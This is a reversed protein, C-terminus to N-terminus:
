QYKKRFYQGPLQVILSKSELEFLHVLIESLELGSAQAIADIHLPEEGLHGLLEGEPGDPLVGGGSSKEPRTGAVEPWLEILIDEVSMVPKAQADQILKNTGRSARSFISGPVAFVERNQELAFSSTVLSGGKLDSEVVLTGATIGSIIRNRKPFKGPSLESGIWEESVLAGREIIKPWLKGRPDTYVTDVGSALVAVTAGGVELAAAHATMDIGYAMGSFIAIGSAALGGSLMRASQHGYSTAHRTGVVALSPHVAVPLRGRVFLCPPPDYIEKLLPPYASDLITLMSAGVRHLAELQDEAAKLSAERQRHDHLFLHLQHALAGGIGSVASLEDRGALLLNDLRSFHGVLAKIRAPGFGPVLTLRLLLLRTETSVACAM